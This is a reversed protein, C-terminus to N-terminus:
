RVEILPDVTDVNPMKLARTEEIFVHIMYDGKKMQVVVKNDHKPEEQKREVVEVKPEVKDAM